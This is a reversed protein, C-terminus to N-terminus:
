KTIAWSLTLDSAPALMLALWSDATFETQKETTLVEWMEKAAETYGATCPNFIQVHMM